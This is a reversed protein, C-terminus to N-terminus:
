RSALRLIVSSETFRAFDPLLERTLVGVGRSALWRVTGLLGSRASTSNRRARSCAASASSCCRAVASIKLTILLEGVFTSGTNRVINDLPDRSHLELMPAINM